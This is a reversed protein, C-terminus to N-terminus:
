AAGPAALRARAEDADPHGIAELLALARRWSGQASPSDGAADQSDGLHILVSGESGPDGLGGYIALAQRYCDIAEALEGRHHHVYGISDWAGAQGHRDGEAQLLSLAQQCAALARDHEGLQAYVWGCANLARAQWLRDGVRTFLAVEQECHDVAEEFRHQALMLWGLSHHTRAQGSDDGLDEYLRLARGLQAAADEHHGLQALARGLDRHTRAQGSRDDLRGLADLALHQTAVLEQWHGQWDLATTLTWALQWCHEDFGHRAAVGVAAVLVAHQQAFWALAQEHGDPARVTVGPAPPDTVVPTRTPDVTMAAAHATHLYHDLLRRVAGRRDEDSDDRACQEAAFAHLLDHLTYRGFAREVLLNSRTLEALLGQARAVPVGGLSAAADGVLDPGPHLGLLRLLRAADPSLMRYSWTFVDRLDTAPDGGSLTPLTDAAERLRAALTGLPVGPASAASAAAVAIALPLRACRDLIALTAEPEGAVRDAGIRRTFLDHSERETLPDLGLPQAGQAAVLTTLQNRSTVLALCGASGPLLPRVQEADRANDLVVLVRRPALVSRYLAARADLDAPIRTATVGFAGLFDALVPNPDLPAASPDFGRLNVYLQGDPFQAAVRHGWHVALTTKGVGPMGSVAAVAVSSASPSSERQGALVADLRALEDVRGAFGPVALPLQAPLTAPHRGPVSPAPPPLDLQPAQRLIAAQLERLPASPSIGLEEDLLHRLRHYAALAEQQRGSRYLALMLQRHVSEQFPYRRALAELEPVLGAAEGLALRADFLGEVAVLRLRELRDAHQGFWDLGAVDALAPGRWLGLASRYGAASRAPDDCARAQEVLREAVVVDTPDAGLDLRYGPPQSLISAKHGLVGRLYSVHRQLTNLSASGGEGWVIDILRDTSVVDGAHLALAALVAKRRLGPVPRAVDGAAVDVPGLLRVQM